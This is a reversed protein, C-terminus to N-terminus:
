IKFASGGKIVALSKLLVTKNDMLLKMYDHELRIMDRDRLRLWEALWAFRLAVIFEPLYTWSMKSIVGSKKMKGIFIGVLDGSLSHPNGHRRLRHSQCRRLTRKETRLIGLRHRM